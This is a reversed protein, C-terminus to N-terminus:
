AAVLKRSSVNKSLIETHPRENFFFIHTLRSTEPSDGHGGKPAHYAEGGRFLILRNYAPAISAVEEWKSLDAKDNRIVKDDFESADAFGIARAERDSPPGYFGTAKHRYLATGVEAPMDRTLYVMGAWDAATDCHVIPRSGTDATIFRFGGWTFRSKDVNLDAGILSGIQRQLAGSDLRLRSAFGPYDTPTINAYESKLAHERIPDPNAYFDDVIIISSRM